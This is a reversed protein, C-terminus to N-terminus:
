ARVYQGGVLTHVDDDACIIEDDHMICDEFVRTVQADEEEVINPDWEEVFLKAATKAAQVSTATVDVCHTRRSVVTVYVDYKIKDAM